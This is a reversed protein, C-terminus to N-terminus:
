CMSKAMSNRLAKRQFIFRRQRITLRVREGPNLDKGLYVKINGLHEVEILAHETPKRFFKETSLNSEGIFHAIFSDAPSEYIEFPTGIQHIKGQNMVAVRDSVSLAEQQDHTVYIFTIGIKDHISDLEILMHQRLKADLASLPEDLLM